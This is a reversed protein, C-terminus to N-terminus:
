NAIVEQLQEEKEGSKRWINATELFARAAKEASKLWILRTERFLSDGKEPLRKDRKLTWQPQEESVQALQEKQEKLLGQKVRDKRLPRAKSSHDLPRKKQLRSNPKLLNKKKKHPPKKRARVQTPRINIM